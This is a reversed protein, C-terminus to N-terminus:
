KKVEFSETYVVTYQRAQGTFHTSSLKIKGKGEPAWDPIKAFAMKQVDGPPLHGSHSELPLYAEEGNKQKIILQKYLDGPVDIRKFYHIHYTVVGGPHVVPTDVKFPAGIAVLVPRSVLISEIGFYLTMAVLMASLVFLFRSIADRVEEFNMSLGAEM